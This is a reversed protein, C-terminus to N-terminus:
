FGLEGLGGATESTGIVIAELPEGAAEAYGRALTAAQRSLDDAAGGDHEVLVLVGPM